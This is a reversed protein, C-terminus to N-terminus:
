IVNFLKSKCREVRDNPYRHTQKWYDDCAVCTWDTKKKLKKCWMCLNYNYPYKNYCERCVDQHKIQTKCEECKSRYITSVINGFPYIIDMRDFQKPKHQLQKPKPQPKEVAVEPENPYRHNKKLYVACLNCTLDKNRKWRKYVCKDCRDHDLMYCDWCGNGIRLPKLLHCTKCKGLKDM